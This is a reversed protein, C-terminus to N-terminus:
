KGRLMSEEEEEEEERRKEKHKLINVVYLCNRQMIRISFLIPGRETTMQM